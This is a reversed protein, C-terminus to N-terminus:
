FTKEYKATTYNWRGAEKMVMEIFERVAGHGGPNSCVYNCINRVEEVADSPCVACGAFDLPELDPLDDGMYAIEEPALSYRRCFDAIDKIKDRSGLYVDEKPVGSAAFRKEISISRGGTIIAVPYGNMTAMRVGFNDKANFIRFLQGELDCFIGGDTFVGDIDFAFAKINKLDLM